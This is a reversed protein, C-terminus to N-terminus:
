SYRGIVINHLEGFALVKIGINSRDDVFDAYGRMNFAILIQTFGNRHYIVINFNESGNGFREVRGDRLLELGSWGAYLPGDAMRNFDGPGTAVDVADGVQEAIGNIDGFGLRSVRFKNGHYGVLQPNLM